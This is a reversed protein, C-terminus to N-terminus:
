VTEVNMNDMMRKVQIDGFGYIGEAESFAQFIAGFTPNDLTKIIHLISKQPKGYKEDVTPFREIHAEIVEEIKDILHKLQKGTARLSIWDSKQYALWLESILAKDKDTIIKKKSYASMLEESSMIGFGKWFSHLPSVLFIQHEKNLFHVAFWFNVQCFLDNEFWLNVISNPEIQQIKSIEDISQAKYEEATIGYNEEFFSIRNELVEELSNGTTNGDILCERLVIKTGDIDELQHLLADGNLIHYEKM